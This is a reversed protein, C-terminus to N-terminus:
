NKITRRNNFLLLKYEEQVADATPKDEKLNM